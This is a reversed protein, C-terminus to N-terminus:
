IGGRHGDTVDVSSLSILGTLAQQPPTFGRHPLIESELQVQDDDDDVVAALQQGGGM